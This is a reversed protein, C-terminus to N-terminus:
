AVQVYGAVDFQLVSEKVSLDILNADVDGNAELSLQNHIELGADM